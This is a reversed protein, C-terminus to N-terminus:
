NSYGHDGKRDDEMVKVKLEQATQSLVQMSELLQNTLFKIQELTQNLQALHGGYTEAELRIAERLSSLSEAQRELEERVVDRVPQDESRQGLNEIVSNIHTVWESISRNIDTIEKVTANLGKVWHNALLEVSRLSGELGQLSDVLREESEQLGHLHQETIKQSEELLPSLKQVSGQFVKMAEVFKKIQPELESIQSSYTKTVLEIKELEKQWHHIIQEWQKQYTDGAYVLQNVWQRQQDSLQNVFQESHRAFNDLIGKQVLLFDSNQTKISEVQMGFETILKGIRDRFENVVAQYTAHMQDSFKDLQHLLTLTREDAREFFYRRKQLFIRNAEWVIANLENALEILEQERREIRNDRVLHLVISLLIIGSILIVDILAVESFPRATIVGPINLAGTQWLYLLNEGRFEPNQSLLLGYANTAISLELWTYFIPFFISVNRFLELFFLFGGKPEVYAGRALEVFRSPSLAELLNLNLWYGIEPLSIWENVQRLSDVIPNQIGKSEARQIFKAIRDHLVGIEEPLPFNSSDM